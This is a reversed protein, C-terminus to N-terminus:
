ITPEKANLIRLQANEFPDIGAWKKPLLPLAANFCINRQESCKLKAFGRLMRKVQEPTYLETVQEPYYADIYSEATYDREQKSM